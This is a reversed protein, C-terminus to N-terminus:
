LLILKRWYNKLIIEMKVSIEQTDFTKDNDL